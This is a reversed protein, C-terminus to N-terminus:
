DLSTLQSCKSTVAVSMDAHLRQRRPLEESRTFFICLECNTIRTPGFYATPFWLARNVSTQSLFNKLSGTLSFKVQTVPSSAQNLIVLSASFSLWWFKKHSFSQSKIICAHSPNRFPTKHLNQQKSLKM